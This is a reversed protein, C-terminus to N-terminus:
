DARASWGGLTRSHTASQAHAAAAPRAFRIVGDGPTTTLERRLRVIETRLGANEKLLLQLEARTPQRHRPHMPGFVLEIREGYCAGNQVGM